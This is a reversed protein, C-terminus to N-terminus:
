VRWAATIASHHEDLFRVGEMTPAFLGGNWYVGSTVGLPGDFLVVDGNQVFNINELRELKSDWAQEIGGYVAALHRKAGQETKYKGRSAEAPDANGQIVVCDAAFMVCDNRGWEFPDTRRQKVLEIFEFAWNMKKM